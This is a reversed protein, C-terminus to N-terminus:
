RWFNLSYEFPKKEMTYNKWVRGGGGVGQFERPKGVENSVEQYGRLIAISLMFRLWRYSNRRFSLFFINVNCAVTDFLLRTVQIKM